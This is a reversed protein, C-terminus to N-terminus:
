DSTADFEQVSNIEHAGVLIPQGRLFGRNPTCVFYCSRKTDLLICVVTEGGRQEPEGVTAVYHKGGHTYDIQYFRREALTADMEEENFKRVKAFLDEAKTSDDINPIFFEAM